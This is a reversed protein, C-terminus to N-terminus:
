TQSGIGETAAVVDSDTWGRPFEVAVKGHLMVLVRDCPRLDDLEDSIILVATGSSRVQDVVSILTAKSRVDVGATPHMLVLLAPKRALARGMVLKQQNGGSLSGALQEPGSAVLSLDKMSSRAIADRRRPNIFGWKGLRDSITMTLNEGVSLLDVLGEHHRDRPVFGIGCALASAVDGPKPRVGNVTITGHDAKRLGVITEALAIRGSSGSGTIGVVEGPHVELSMEEYAGAKSLGDIKLVPSAGPRIKSVYDDAQLIDVEGTMAAVLEDTSLDAVPATVIHRADRFVTVTECIEYIEELHHSIYLFSVGQAQILRLRQFLRAVGKADLQATPEDLIVFRAGFSLARSIEVMQREEVTLTAALNAVDVSIGWADVMGQAESRMAKWSIVPGNTQQRNLFLNEAVTLTPIITSKQYVCAVLQRWADRDYLPPAPEGRFKVEGSDPAQLGTIISVLTSKGAGNRGVLAHAGGDRVVLDVHDLATTSGFRKTINIAEVPPRVGVEPGPGGAALSDTSTM